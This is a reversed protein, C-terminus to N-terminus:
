QRTAEQAQSQEVLTATDDSAYREVIWRVVPPAALMIVLFRLLGLTLVLAVDAGSDLAIITVMNLGGPTTALYASFLDIGTLLALAWGMLAAGIILLLTIALFIPVLKGATRVAQLDFQLGISIGVVMYAPRLVLEPWEAHSLGLLGLLTGLVAPGVLAGAPLRMRLGLWAGVVTIALTLALPLLGADLSVSSPLLGSDAPPPVVLAAVIALLSLVLMVRLLQMVAVLRTDSHLADSLAVMGPAGGPLMGLLATGLDISSSIRALLAGSLLSFVLLAGIILVIAWWYHLFVALADPTIATSVAGGIVAQGVHEVWPSFTRREPRLCAITGAVFMPGLLWAAPIGPLALLWGAAASATGLILWFWYTNQM